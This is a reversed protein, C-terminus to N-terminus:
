NTEIQYFLDAGQSQEKTETRIIWKDTLKYELQLANLAQSAGTIYKMYFKKSFYQGFVLVNQQTAQDVQVSIEDIGFEDALSKTITNLGLAATGAVIQSKDQQSAKDYLRGLVLYSMISSDDMAPKSILQTQPDSALGIIKVGVRIDNGIYKVAEIDLTPQTVPVASYILKGKEITLEQNYVSYKGDVIRIEGSAVNLGDAQERVLLEGELRGVLQRGIADQNQIKVEKGLKIRVAATLQLDSSASEIPKENDVVVLDSSPQLSSTTDLQQINARPVQIEGEVTLM